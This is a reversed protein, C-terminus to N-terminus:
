FTITMEPATYSGLSKLSLPWLPKFDDSDDNGDNTKDEFTDTRRGELVYALM